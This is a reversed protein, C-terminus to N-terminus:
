HTTGSNCLNFENTRRTLAVKWVIFEPCHYLTRYIRKLTDDMLVVNAPLATACRMAACLCPRIYNLSFCPMLAGDVRCHQLLSFLESNGALFQEEFQAVADLIVSKYIM